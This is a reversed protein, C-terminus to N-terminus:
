GELGAIILWLNRPQMGLVEAIAEVNSYHPQHGEKAHAYRTITRRSVGSRKSVERATMGKSEIIQQLTM